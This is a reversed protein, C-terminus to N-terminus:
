LLEGSTGTRLRIFGAWANALRYQVIWKLIIRGNVGLDGFSDNGKLIKRSFNQICTMEGM